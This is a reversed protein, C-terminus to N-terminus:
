MSQLPTTASPHSTSTFLSECFQPDHLLTQASALAVDVHSPPLQAIVPQLLPYLSQLPIAASPHSAMTAVSGWFQPDHSLTQKPFSM